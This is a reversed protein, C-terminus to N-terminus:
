DLRRNEPLAISTMVYVILNEASLEGKELLGCKPINEVDYFM